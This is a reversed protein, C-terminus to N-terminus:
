DQPSAGRVAAQKWVERKNLRVTLEAASLRALGYQWSVAEADKRAELVVVVEPNTGVGWAFIAGDVLGSDADAYRCLPKPLLQLEGPTGTQVVAFTRLLKDMQSLREAEREAPAPAEALRT